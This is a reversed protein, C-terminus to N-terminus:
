LYCRPQRIAYVVLGCASARQAARRARVRVMSMSPSVASSLFPLKCFHNQRARTTVDQVSMPTEMWLSSVFPACAGFSVESLLRRKEGRARAGKEADEEGRGSVRADGEAEVERTVCLEAERVIPV